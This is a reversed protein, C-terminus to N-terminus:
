SVYSVKTNLQDNIMIYWIFKYQLQFLLHTLCFTVYKMGNYFYTDPKWIKRLLDIKEPGHAMTADNLLEVVIGTDEALDKSHALKKAPIEAEATSAKSRTKPM